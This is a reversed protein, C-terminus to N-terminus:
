TRQASRWKSGAASASRSRTSPLAVHAGSVGPGHQGRAVLVTPLGAEVDRDERENTMMVRAMTM